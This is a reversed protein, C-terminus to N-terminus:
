IELPPPYMFFTLYICFGYPINRVDRFYYRNERFLRYRHLGNRKDRFFNGTRHHARRQGPRSRQLSDRCHKLCVRYIYLHGHRRHKVACVCLCNGRCSLLSDTRCVGCPNISMNRKCSQSM